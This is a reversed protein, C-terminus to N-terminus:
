SLLRIVPCCVSAVFVITHLEGNQEIASGDLFSVFFGGVKDLALFYLLYLLYVDIVVWYIYSSQVLRETARHVFRKSSSHSIM